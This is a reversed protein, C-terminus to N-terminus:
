PPKDETVNEIINIMKDIYSSDFECWKIENTKSVIEYLYYLMVLQLHLIITFYVIM